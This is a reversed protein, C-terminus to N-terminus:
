RESRERTEGNMFNLSQVSSSQSIDSDIRKRSKRYRLMPNPLIYGLASSLLAVWLSDNEGKRLSLHIASLLIVGFMAMLQAVYTVKNKASRRECKFCWENERGSQYVSSVSHPGNQTVTIDESVKGHLHSNTLASIGTTTTESSIILPVIYNDSSNDNNNNNNNINNNTNCNNNNINGTNGEFTDMKLLFILSHLPNLFLIM